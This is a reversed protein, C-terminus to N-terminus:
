PFGALALLWAVSLLYGLVTFAGNWRFAMIGGPQETMRSLIVLTTGYVASGSSLAWACLFTVALMLPTLHLASPDPIASGLITVGVVAGMGTQAGVIIVLLLAAALPAPDLGAAQIAHRVLDPPVLAGLASGMITGAGILCIEIRYNPFMAFLRRRLRGLTFGVANSLGYRAYQAVLWGIGVVPVTLMVGENLAIGSLATVGLASGVILLALAAFRAMPQWDLPAAEERPPAGGSFAPVLKMGDLLWGLALFSVTVAAAVPILRDWSVGPVVALVVALGISLPSWMPMTCFGHMLGMSLERLRQRVLTADGRALTATNSRMVMGGLLTLVGVGLVLAFLHAGLTMILYRRQSPQAILATGCRRILPSTRAAENVFGLAALLAAVLTARGFADTIAAVGDPLRAVALAALALAVAVMIKCLRPLKPAEAALYLALAVDAVIGASPVGALQKTLTAVAVVGLALTSVVADASPRPRPRAQIM